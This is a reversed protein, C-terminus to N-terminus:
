ESGRGANQIYIAQGLAEEQKIDPRNRKPYRLDWGAPLVGSYLNIVAATHRKPGRVVRLYISGAREEMSDREYKTSRLNLMVYGYIM